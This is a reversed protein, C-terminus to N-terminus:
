KGLIGILESKRRELSAMKSKLKRLESNVQSLEKKLLKDRLHNAGYREIVFSEVETRLLKIYPNGYLVNHRFQLKGARIAEVIEEQSLGFDERASKDSLTAGKENWAPNSQEVNIEIDVM